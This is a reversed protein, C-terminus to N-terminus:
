LLVMLLNPKDIFYRIASFYFYGGAQSARASAVFFNSCFPKPM